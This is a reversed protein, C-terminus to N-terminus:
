VGEDFRVGVKRCTEDDASQSINRHKNSQSARDRESQWALVTSSYGAPPYTNNMHERNDGAIKLRNNYGRCYKHALTQFFHKKLSLWEQPKADRIQQKHTHKHVPTLSIPSSRQKSVSNSSALSALSTEANPLHISKLFLKDPLQCLSRM